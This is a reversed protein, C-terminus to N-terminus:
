VGLEFKKLGPTEAVGIIENCKKWTCTGKQNGVHRGHDKAANWNEVLLHGDTLIETHSSHCEDTFQRGDHFTVHRQKQKLDILDPKEELETGYDLCNQIIELTELYTLFHLWKDVFEFIVILLEM